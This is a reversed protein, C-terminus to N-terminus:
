SGEFSSYRAFDDTEYVKVSVSAGVLDVPSTITAVGGQSVTQAIANEQQYYSNVRVKSQTSANVASMAMTALITAGLVVILLAVLVEAFSDGARDYLKACVRSSCPATKIRLGYEKRFPLFARRIM